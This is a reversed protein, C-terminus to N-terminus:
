RDRVVGGRGENDRTTGLALLVADGIERATASRPVSIEPEDGRILLDEDRQDVVCSRLGRKYEPWSSVGALELVPSSYKAWDPMEGGDRFAALARLVNVGLAEVDYSASRYAPAKDVYTGPGPSYTSTVYVHGNRLGVSVGPTPM